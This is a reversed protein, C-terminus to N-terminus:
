SGPPKAFLGVLDGKAVVHGEMAALLDERDAGGALALAGDLAFLQFHYHHAPGAPPRPGSWGVSGGGNRGQRLSGLDPLEREGKIGEQLGSMSPEINWALWHVFPAPSHADPDEVLLALSKAKAPLKSWMLAPSKGEGFASYPLGIDGGEPFSPSMVRLTRGTRTEPRQSALRPDAPASGRPAGCSTLALAALAFAAAIRM